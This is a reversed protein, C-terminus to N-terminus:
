VAKPTGDLLANGPVCPDPLFHKERDVETSAVSIKLKYFNQKYENRIGLYWFGLVNTPKNHNVLLKKPWRKGDRWCRGLERGRRGM